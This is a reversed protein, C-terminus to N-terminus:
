VALDEFEGGPMRRQHRRAAGRLGDAQQVRDGGALHIQVVHAQRRRYHRAQLEGGAVFAPIEERGLVDQMWAMGVIPAEEIQGMRARMRIDATGVPEITQGHTVAIQQGIIDVAETVFWEQLRARDGARRFHVDNVAGFLM